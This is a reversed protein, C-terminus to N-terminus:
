FLSTPEHPFPYKSPASEMEDQQVVDWDEEEDEDEVNRNLTKELATQRKEAIEAKNAEVAVFSCYKGGVQFEVGLRVAERRQLLSFQHPFKDKVLVDSGAVTALSLWGHGEELEQTAKRAALQHIMEDAETRVSVPIELELPGQPSTGKLFVSKPKLHACEPALLLYVCTRHFPFLQPIETPTQLLKPRDLPPLGSQLDTYARPDSLFGNSHSTMRSSIPLFHCGSYSRLLYTRSLPLIASVYFWAYKGEFIDGPESAKPHEDEFDSDYLSLPKADGQEKNQKGDKDGINLNVRLSEAVSEVTDDEYKVELRYDKIHPTLAGKLMRVIKSDLKENDTVMQAFGRGARAVGEILSSSVGGGIGIPFVRVDGSKTQESIYDFMQQQSWIDGDTLLMLETPLDKHRAEFCARVANLTETGGFDAGFRDVHSCHLNAYRKSGVFTLSTSTRFNTV